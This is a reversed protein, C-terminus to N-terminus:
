RSQLIIMIGHLTILNCTIRKARKSSVFHSTLHRFSSLNLQRHQQHWNQTGSKCSTARVRRNDAERSWKGHLHLYFSFIFDSIFRWTSCKDELPLLFCFCWATELVCCVIQYSETHFYFRALDMLLLIATVLSASTFWPRCIVSWLIVLGIQNWAINVKWLRATEKRVVLNLM